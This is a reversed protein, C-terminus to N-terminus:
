SLQLLICGFHWTVLGLFSTFRHPILPFQLIFSDHLLTVSGPLLISMSCAHLFLILCLVIVSLLLLVRFMPLIIPM